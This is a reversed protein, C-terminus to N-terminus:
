SGFCLEGRYISNWASREPQSDACRQRPGHCDRCGSGRHRPDPRYLSDPWRPTPKPLSQYAEATPDLPGQLNILAQTLDNVAGQLTEKLTQLANSYKQAAEVANHRVATGAAIAKDTINRLGQEGVQNLTPIVVPQRSKLANYIAVRL